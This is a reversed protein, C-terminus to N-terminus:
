APLNFIGVLCVDPQKRWSVLSFQKQPTQLEYVLQPCLDPALWVPSLDWSLWKGATSSLYTVLEKIRRWVFMSILKRGRSYPSAKSKTVHMWCIFCPLLAPFVAKSAVNYYSELEVASTGAWERSRWDSVPPLSAVVDHLCEVAWPPIWMALFKPRGAVMHM